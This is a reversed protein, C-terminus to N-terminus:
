MVMIGGLNETRPAEVLNRRKGDETLPRRRARRTHAAEPPQLAGRTLVEARAPPVEVALPRPVARRPEAVQQCHGDQVNAAPELRRLAKVVRRTERQHQHVLRHGKWDQHFKLAM